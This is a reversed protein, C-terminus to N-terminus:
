VSVGCINIRINILFYYRTRGRAKYHTSTKLHLCRVVSFQETLCHHKARHLPIWSLRPNQIGRQPNRIGVAPNRIEAWHIGSELFPQMGIKKKQKLAKRRMENEREFRAINFSTTLVCLLSTKKKSKYIRSSHIVTGYPNITLLLSPCMPLSDVGCRRPFFFYCFLLCVMVAFQFSFICYVGEGNQPVIVCWVCKLLINKYKVFFSLCSM